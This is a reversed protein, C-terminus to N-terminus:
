LRLEYKATLPQWPLAGYTTWLRGLNQRKEIRTVEAEVRVCKSRETIIYTIREGPKLNTLMVRKIPLIETLM